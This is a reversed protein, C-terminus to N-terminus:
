PCLDKIAMEPFMIWYTKIWSNANRTLEPTIDMYISQVGLKLAIISYHQRWIMRGATNGACEQELVSSLFFFFPERLGGLVLVNIPFVRMPTIESLLSLKCGLSLNRSQLYINMLLVWSLLVCNTLSIASEAVCAFWPGTSPRRCKTRSFGHHSGPSNICYEEAERVCLFYLWCLTPFLAWHLWCSGCPFPVSAWMELM